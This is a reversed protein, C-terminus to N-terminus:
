KKAAFIALAIKASALGSFGRIILIRGFLAKSPAAGNCFFLAYASTFFRKKKFVIFKTEFDIAESECFYAIKERSRGKVAQRWADFGSFEEVDLLFFFKFFLNKAGKKHFLWGGQKRLFLFGLCYLWDQVFLTWKKLSLAVRFAASCLVEKQGFLGGAKSRWKQALFYFINKNKTSLFTYFLRCDRCNEFNCLHPWKKGM